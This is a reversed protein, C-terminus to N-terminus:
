ANWRVQCSRHERVPVSGAPLLRVRDPASRNVPVREATVTTPNTVISVLIGQHRAGRNEEPAAVRGRSTTVKGVSHDVEACHFKM